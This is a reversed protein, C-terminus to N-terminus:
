HPGRRSAGAANRAAAVTATRSILAPIPASLPGDVVTGVTVAGARVSVSGVVVAREGCGRRRVYVISAPSVSSWTASSCSVVTSRSSSSLGRM